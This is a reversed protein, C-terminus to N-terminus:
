PVASLACASWALECSAFFAAPSSSWEHAPLTSAPSPPPNIFILYNTIYFRSSSLELFIAGLDYSMNNGLLTM